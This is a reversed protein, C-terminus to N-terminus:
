PRAQARAPVSPAARLRGDIGTMHRVRRDVEVGLAYPDVGEGPLVHGDTTMQILGQQFMKSVVAGLGAADVGIGDDDSEHWIMM